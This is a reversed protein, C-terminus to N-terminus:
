NESFALRLYKEHQKHNTFVEVTDFCGQFEEITERLCKEFAIIEQNNHSYRIGIDDIILHRFVPMDLTQRNCNQRLAMMFPIRIKDRMLREFKAPSVYIDENEEWHRLASEVSGMICINSSSPLVDPQDVEQDWIANSLVNPIFFATQKYLQVLSPSRKKDDDMDDSQDQNNNNRRKLFLSPSRLQWLLTTTKALDTLTHPIGGFITNCPSASPSYITIMKNPWTESASKEDLGCFHDFLTDPQVIVQTPTYDQNNVDVVQFQSILQDLEDDMEEEQSCRLIDRASMFCRVGKNLPTDQGEETKTFSKVEHYTQHVQNKYHDFVFNRRRPKDKNENNDQTNNNNNNNNAM